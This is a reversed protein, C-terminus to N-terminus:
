LQSRYPLFFCYCRSQCRQLRQLHPLNESEVRFLRMTIGSSKFVSFHRSRDYIEHQHTELDRFVGERGKRLLILQIEVYLLPFEM